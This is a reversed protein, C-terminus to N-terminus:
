CSTAQIDLILYKQAGTKFLCTHPRPSDRYSDPPLCVGL